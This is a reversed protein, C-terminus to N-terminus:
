EPCPGWAGLLALLDATNVIGDYNIDRPTGSGGWEGLLALLDVTNVVGDFPEACDALCECEDPIGNGNVDESTGNDIDQDDFVGNHNCDLAVAGYADLVGYGYVYYPDFTGNAVYYDATVFLFERLQDVTWTPQAQVICAVAGAVLPTSLSTGSATDYGHDDDPNVTHTSSGRALVEPKVRGDATPGDGSFGAIEGTSEVAGCTIAQFADAPAGLHSTQPNQDHGENGAATCCYLGNETAANVAITTVATQGDMDEQTYWDLYILSSTSVDGGNAEIFELGAVYNDEEGPYEDSTDETKCLIFAADYAGGVLEEPMYAGLTGLILTGHRHQSYPDGEEIGTNEDMNIFDYEAIVQLPHDPHNFAEHTRVFGTDLIGVIIGEGTAGEAHLAILNMQELQEEAAGYFGRGGLPAVPFQEEDPAPPEIRRGRRVPEISEVFPLAAIAEAQEANVWASVANLWRSTIHLEAGTARVADIYAAAVPLDREDFLGPATRRLQRRQVAKRDYTAHLRRMAAARERESAFGKDIFFVWVKIPTGEAALRAALAPHIRCTPRDEVASISSGQGVSLVVLLGLLLAGVLGRRVNVVSSRDASM